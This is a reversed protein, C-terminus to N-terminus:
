RVKLAGLNPTIVWIEGSDKVEEKKPTRWLVGDDSVLGHEKIFREFFM